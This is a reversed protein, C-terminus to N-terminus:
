KCFIGGSKQTATNSSFVSESVSLISSNDVFIGAGNVALNWRFISNTVSMKFFFFFSYFFFFFFIKVNSKTSYIVGGDQSATSAQFLTNSITLNCGEAYIFGGNQGTSASFFFFKSKEFFFFFFFFNNQIM